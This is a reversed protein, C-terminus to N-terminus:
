IENCYRKLLDFEEQTIENELIIGDENVIQGISVMAEKRIRIYNEYDCQKLLWIDVQYEKIIELVKEQEQSKILSQKIDLYAFHLKLDLEAETEAYEIWNSSPLEQMATSCDHLMELEELAESPNANDIAELRELAQEITRLENPLDVSCYNYGLFNKVQKLAELEKSM